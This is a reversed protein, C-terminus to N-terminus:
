FSYWIGFSFGQADGTKRGYLTKQYNFIASFKGLNLRPGVNLQVLKYDPELFINEGIQKRKGDGLGIQADVFTLLQINQFLNIGGGGYARIQSSPYGFYYRYGLGSDWFGWRGSFGYLVGGELGVRGYAIRPNDNISYGTPIIINGYLSISKSDQLKLNRILGLELDGFGSTSNNGCKLWDYPLKFTLTNKSSLGYEGYIQMERKEFTCGIPRRKGESDYYKKASQYYFTTSIFLEGEKRVWASALVVSNILLSILITTKM